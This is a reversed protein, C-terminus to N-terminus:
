SCAGPAKHASHAMDLSRNLVFLFMPRHAPVLSSAERLEQLVSGGHAALSGDTGGDPWAFLAAVDGLTWQQVEDGLAFGEVLDNCVEAFGRGEGEFVFVEIRKADGLRRDENHRELQFRRNGLSRRSEPSSTTLTSTDNPKSGTECRPLWTLSRLTRGPPLRSVSM